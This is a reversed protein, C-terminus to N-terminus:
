RMATAAVARTAGVGLMEAESEGVVTVTGDPLVAVEVRVTVGEPPKLPLTVM